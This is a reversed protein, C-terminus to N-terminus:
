PYGGKGLGYPHLPSLPHAEGDRVDCGILRVGPALKCGILHNFGYHIGYVEDGKDHLFSALYTGIFGTAGTILVKM